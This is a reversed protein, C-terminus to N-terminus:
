AAGSHALERSAEAQGTLEGAKGVAAAVADDGTIWRLPPRGTEVIKVLGAATRAPDGPGPDNDARWDALKAATREAYDGISLEPWYVSADAQIGARSFGPEVITTRIGFPEVDFRLSEMWGEVGFKSAAYAACFERGALGATSSITVIHGSRQARMVPLVARTVNMPGFLNTEIQARTQAPSVEEFFGPYCTAANNVLVDIRGFREVAMATAAQAEDPCTIDLRVALLREDPGDLAREVDGPRRGTAMVRHGASLAATAIAAGLGRGAGTVFFVKSM